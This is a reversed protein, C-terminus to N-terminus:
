SLAAFFGTTKEKKLVEHELVWYKRDGIDIRRDAGPVSLKLAYRDVHHKWLTRYDDVPMQVESAYIDLCKLHDAFIPNQLQIAVDHGTMLFGEALHLARAIRRLILLSPNTIHEAKTELDEIYRTGVGVKRALDKESLGQHTRNQRIRRGLENANIVPNASRLDALHPLLRDLAHRLPQDLEALDSYTVIRKRAPCGTVMSSLDVNERKLLIVSSCSQLALQLEMGAGLSPYNCALILLDANAVNERDIAYVERPPLRQDQKPSTKTERPRYLVLPHRNYNACIKNVQEDLAVIELFQEDTLNTLASAFYAVVAPAQLRSGIVAIESPPFLGAFITGRVLDVPERELGKALARLVEKSPERSYGGTEIKSVESQSVRSIGALAEQSLGMDTRWQRVREGFAEKGPLNDSTAM